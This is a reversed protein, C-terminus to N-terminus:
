LCSSRVLEWDVTSFRSLCFEGACCLVTYKKVDNKNVSNKQGTGLVCLSFSCTGTVATRRPPLLCCIGEVALSRAAGYGNHVLSLMLALGDPLSLSGQLSLQQNRFLWTAAGSKGGSRDGWRGLLFVLLSSAPTGRFTRTGGDSMGQNVRSTFTSFAVPSRARWRWCSHWSDKGWCCRTCLGRQGDQLVLSLSLSSQLHPIGAEPLVLYSVLGDQCSAAAVWAPWGCCVQVFSPVPM